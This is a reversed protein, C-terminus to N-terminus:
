LAAILPRSSFWSVPLLDVVVSRKGEWLVGSGFGSTEAEVKQHVLVVVTVVSAGVVALVVIVVVSAGVLVVVKRVILLAGIVSCVVSVGIMRSPM